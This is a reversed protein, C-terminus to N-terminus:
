PVFNIARLPTYLFVQEPLMYQVAAYFRFALYYDISNGPMKDFQLYADQTSNCGFMLNGNQPVPSCNTFVITDDPMGANTVVEYGEFNSLSATSYNNGKFALTRTLTDAYLQRTKGSMLFKFNAFRGLDTIIAQNNLAVATLTDAMADAVNRLGDTTGSASTPGATLKWTGTTVTGSTPDAIDIKNTTPIGQTTNPNTPDYTQVFQKIFGDFFQYQYRADTNPLTSYSTSGVWVGQQIYQFCNVVIYPMLYNTVETPLTRNNVIQELNIAQWNRRLDNPTFVFYSGLGQPQILRGGVTFKAAQTDTFTSQFPQLPSSVRNVPVTTQYKIGDQVWLSGNAVSQFGYVYPQVALGLLADGAYTTDTVFPNPGPGQVNVQASAMGEFANRHLNMLFIDKM